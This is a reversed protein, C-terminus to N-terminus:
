FLGSTTLLKMVNGPTFKLSKENFGEGDIDTFEYHFEHRARYYIIRMM